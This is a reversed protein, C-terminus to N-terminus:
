YRDIDGENSIRGRRIEVLFEEFFQSAMDAVDEEISGNSSGTLM